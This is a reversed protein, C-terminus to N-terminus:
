SPLPVKRGIKAIPNNRKKSPYTIKTPRSLLYIGQKSFLNAIPSYSIENPLFSSDNLFIKKEIHFGVETALSEFDRLTCFHINPTDHWQYSLSKTVPMRGSLSLYLRNEIYGFNPVSIIAYKSIRMMEKLIEKPNKTVQLTQSLIALDVADDPYNYLDADADGQIVPIGNSIATTVKKANLEIGRGIIKKKSKLHSLLTGDGCGIDLIKAYKPILDTIIKFDKRM